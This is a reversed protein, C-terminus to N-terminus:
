YFNKSTGFEGSVHNKSLSFKYDVRGGTGTEKSVSLCFAIYVKKMKASYVAM